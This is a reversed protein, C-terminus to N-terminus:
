TIKMGNKLFPHTPLSEQWLNSFTDNRVANISNFMKLNTWPASETCVSRM